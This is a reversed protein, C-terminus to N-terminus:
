HRVAQAGNKVIRASAAGADARGPGVYASFAAWFYPTRWQSSAIMALQAERLAPIAPKGAALRSFFTDMLEPTSDDGVDWMGAVVTQAGAGLFGWSFGVLGEGAYARDGASRCSSVTVVRAAIPHELVERVSLRNGSAGPSLVISSDLASTQNVAGHAAFHIIDFSHLPASLYAAPRAQAGSFVTARDGFRGILSQLERGAQGLRPFDAGGDLPDGLALVRAPASERPSLQGPLLRLAPATALAQHEILYRNDGAILAGFPLGHLAGDPVVVLTRAAAVTEAVPGLLVQFLKHGPSGPIGRPDRHSNQIFARYEDVLRRLAAEGPLVSQVVGEASITWLLSRHKSVWFSLLVADLRRALTRWAAQTRPPELVLPAGLLQGRSEEIVNLAELGRGEALLLEAFGDYLAGLHELYTVRHDVSVLGLRSQRVGALAARYQEDAEATRGQHVLAAALGAEAQWRLTRWAGAGGVVARFGREAEAYDGSQLALRARNWRLHLASAEDDPSLLREARQLSAGADAWRRLLIQANAMNLVWDVAGRPGFQGASAAAREFDQLAEAWRRQASRLNGREGHGFVHLRLDEEAWNVSLITQLRQEASAFDGLRRLAVAQNLRSRARLGDLAKAGAEQEAGTVLQLAESFSQQQLRLVAMRNLAAVRWYAADGGRAAEAVRQAASLAAPLDGRAALVQSKVLQLDWRTEADGDRVATEAAALAPDIAHGEIRALQVRLRAQRARLRPDNTPASALARLAAPPPRGEELWADLALLGFRLRVAADVRPDIFAEALRIATRLRGTLFAQRAGAFAAEVPPQRDGCTLAGAAIALVVALAGGPIRESGTARPREAAAM